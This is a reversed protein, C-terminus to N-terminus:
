RSVTSPDGSFTTYLTTYILKGLILILMLGLFKTKASSYNNNLMELLKLLFRLTSTYTMLMKMMSLVKGGYALTRTRKRALLWSHNSLKDLTHLHIYTLSRGSTMYTNTLHTKQVGFLYNKPRLRVLGCSNSLTFFFNWFDCYAICYLGNTLVSRKLSVLLQVNRM